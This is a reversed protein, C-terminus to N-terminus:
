MLLFCFFPSVYKPTDAVNSVQYEPIEQDNTGCTSGIVYNCANQCDGVNKVPPTPHLEQCADLCAQTRLQCDYANVPVIPPQLRSTGGKNCECNWGMTVPNCFNMTVNSEADSKGSDCGSTQCDETTQECIMTRTQNSESTLNYTYSPLSAALSSATAPVFASQTAYTPVPLLSFSTTTTATPIPSSSTTGNLSTQGVAATSGIGLVFFDYWKMQM